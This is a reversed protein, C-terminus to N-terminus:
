HTKAALFSRKWCRMAEREDAFAVFEAEPDTLDQEVVGDDQTQNEDMLTEFETM